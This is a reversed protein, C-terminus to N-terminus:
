GGDKQLESVKEKIDESLPLLQQTVRKDHEDFARTLRELSNNIQTQVVADQRDHEFFKQELREMIHATREQSLQVNRIIAVIDRTAEVNSRSSYVMPTGDNDTKGVIDHLFGIKEAMDSIRKVLDQDLTVEMVHEKGNKNLKRVLAVILIELLRIFGLAIAVAVGIGTPNSVLQIIGDAGVPEVM